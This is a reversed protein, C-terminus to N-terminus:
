MGPRGTAHAYLRQLRSINATGEAVTRKLERAGEGTLRQYMALIKGLVAKKHSIRNELLEISKQISAKRNELTRLESELERWQRELRLVANEANRVAPGYKGEDSAKARDLNQRACEM